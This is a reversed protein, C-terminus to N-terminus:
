ASVGLSKVAKRTMVGVLNARYEASAHIDATLGDSPYTIGHLVQESFEKALLAEAEKWRFVCPGAGTVAVRVADGYDAVMVGTMAYGTAMQAFKAYAARKPVAFRIAVIIEDVELATAFMGQFFDDAAIERRNTVVIAALGLVAAPYDAAPDNNAVSGGLTGRARVQPDGILNALDALAGISTRVDRSEAVECHRMGAGVTLYITKGTTAAAVSISRIENLGAIDILHSPASLRHKMSPLLTMGGALLKADPLVSLAASAESLSVVKQYEFAYM